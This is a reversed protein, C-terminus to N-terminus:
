SSTSQKFYSLHFGHSILFWSLGLRTLRQRTFGLADLDPRYGEASSSEAIVVLGPVSIRVSVSEDAVPLAVSSSNGCIRRIFVARLFSFIRASATEELRRSYWYVRPKRTFINRKKLLKREM